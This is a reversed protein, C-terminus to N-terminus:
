HPFVIEALTWLLVLLGIITSVYVLISREGRLISIIGTVFAGIGSIGALLTPPALILNSFFTDGGREGLAVFLAFLGLFGFFASALGLSWKGLRTKAAIRM